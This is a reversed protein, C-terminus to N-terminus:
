EGGAGGETGSGRGTTETTEEITTTPRPCPEASGGPAFAPPQGPDAQWAALAEDVFKIVYNRGCDEADFSDGGRGSYAAMSEAAAQFQGLCAQAAARYLFTAPNGEPANQAENLLTRCDGNRLLDYWRNSNDPTDDDTPGAPVYDVQKRGPGGSPESSGPVTTPGPEGAATTTTTTAGDSASEGGGGGCGSFAAALALGGVLVSTRIRVCAM